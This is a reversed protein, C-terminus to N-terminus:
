ALPYGLEQLLDGAHAVFRDNEEETLKDRWNTKGGGSVGGVFGTGTADNWSRMTSHVRDVSSVEVARRLTEEDSPLDCFEAVSGVTDIPNARLDEFRILRMNPHSKHKVWSRVNNYWTGYRLFGGTFKREFDRFSGRYNYIKKFFDYYSIMVDRGDRVVYVIKGELFYPSYPLHSKFFRREAPMRKLRAPFELTDIAPMLNELDEFDKPVTDYALALMIHRLWTNGSRPYSFLFCDDSRVQMWPIGLVRHRLDRHVKRTNRWLRSPLTQLM